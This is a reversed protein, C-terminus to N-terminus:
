RTSPASQSAREQTGARVEVVDVDKGDWDGSFADFKLQYTMGPKTAIQQVIGGATQPCHGHLHGTIHGNGWKHEHFGNRRPSHNFERWHARGASFDGNQVLNVGRVDLGGGGLVTKAAPPVPCHERTHIEFAAGATLGRANFRGGPLSFWRNDTKRTKGCDRPFAVDPDNYHLIVM